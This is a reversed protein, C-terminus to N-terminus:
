NKNTKRETLERILANANELSIGCPECYLEPHFSKRANIVTHNDTSITFKVGAEALPKIDAIIAERLAPIDWFVETDRGMEIYISTDKLLRIVEEQEGPQFFRCENCTLDNLMKGLKKADRALRELRMPFPHFLIMPIPFKKQVEKIQRIRKLLLQGNPPGEDHNPSIHWGIVDPLTMPATELGEDLEFEAIEWGNFITLEKHTRAANDFDAMLARHGEAGMPYWQQVHNERAWRAYKKPKMRYLELHDLLLFAKRGDAVALDIWADLPVERELGAHLHMDMERYAFVNPTSSEDASLVEGWAVVLALTLWPRIVVIKM